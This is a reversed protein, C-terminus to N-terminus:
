FNTKEIRDAKWCARHSNSRDLGDEGMVLSRELLLKTVFFEANWLVSCCLEASNKAAKVLIAKEGSKGVQEEKGDSIENCHDKSDMEVLM